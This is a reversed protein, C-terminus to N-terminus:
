AIYALSSKRRLRKVVIDQDLVEKISELTSIQGLHHDAHKLTLYIIQYVDLKIGPIIKIEKTYNNAYAAPAEKILEIIKRLQIALKLELEELSYYLPLQFEPLAQIKFVSVNVMTEAITLDSEIYASEQNVLGEHLLDILKEVQRIVFQNVLYIHGAIEKANWGTQESLSLSEESICRITGNLKMSLEQAYLKLNVKTQDFQLNEM